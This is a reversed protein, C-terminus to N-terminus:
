VVARSTPFHLDSRAVAARLHLLHLAVVYQREGERMVGMDREVHVVVRVIPAFAVPQRLTVGRLLLAFSLPLVVQFEVADLAQNFPEKNQLSRVPVGLRLERQGGGRPLMHRHNDPADIVTHGVGGVPLDSLHIARLEDDNVVLPFVAVFGQLLDGLFRATSGFPPYFPLGYVHATAFMAFFNGQSVALSERLKFPISAVRRLEVGTQERNAAGPVDIGLPVPM